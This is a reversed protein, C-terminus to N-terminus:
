VSNSVPRHDLKRSCVSDISIKRGSERYIYIYIYICVYMYIHSYKNKYYEGIGEANVNM